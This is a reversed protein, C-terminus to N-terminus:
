TLAARYDAGIKIPKINMLKGSIPLESCDQIPKNM